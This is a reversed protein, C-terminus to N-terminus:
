AQDNELEEIWMTPMCGYTSTEKSLESVRTLLNLEEQTLEMEFSTTDDCGILEIIYKKKM